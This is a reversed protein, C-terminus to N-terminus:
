RLFDGGGLTERRYSDSALVKKDYLGKDWFLSVVSIIKNKNCITTKVMSSLSSLLDSGFSGKFGASCEWSRFHMRLFM